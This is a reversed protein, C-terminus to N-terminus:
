RVNFMWFDLNKNNPLLRLNCVQWPILSVSSSSSSLVLEILYRLITMWLLMVYCSSMSDNIALNFLLIPKNLRTLCRNGDSARIVNYLEKIPGSKVMGIDEPSVLIISSYHFIQLYQLIFSCFTDEIQRAISWGSISLFSEAPWHQELPAKYMFINGGKLANVPKHNSMELFESM